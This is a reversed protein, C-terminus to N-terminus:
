RMRATCRSCCGASPIRRVGAITSRRRCLTAYRDVTVDQAFASVCITSRRWRCATSASRAPSRLFRRRTRRRATARHADARPRVSGARRPAGAAPADGEDALDDAARAFRYIAVVAPRLARRCSGRRSPFTKTIASPCAFRPSHPSLSFSDACAVPRPPWVKTCFCAIEAITVREASAAERRGFKAVRVGSTAFTASNTSAGAKPAPPAARPPELGGKRVVVRVELCCPGILVHLARQFRQALELAAQADGHRQLLDLAFDVLAERAKGLGDLHRAEPRALHRDLHDRLLIARLHARVDDGIGHLRAEVLGHALLVQAHGAIRADLRRVARRRRLARELERRHELDIRFHVIPSM